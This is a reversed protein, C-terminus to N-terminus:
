LFTFMAASTPTGFHASTRFNTDIMSPGDRSYTMTYLGIDRISSFVPNPVKSLIPRQMTPLFSSTAGHRWYRDYGGVTRRDVDHCRM